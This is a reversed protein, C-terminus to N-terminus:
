GGPQSSGEDPTEVTKVEELDNWQSQSLAKWDTGSERYDKWVDRYLAVLVPITVGAFATVAGLVPVLQAWDPNDKGMAQTVIRFFANTVLFVYSVLAGFKLFLMLRVVIRASDINSWAWQWRTLAM